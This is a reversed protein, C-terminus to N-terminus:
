DNEAVPKRLDEAGLHNEFNTMWATADIKACCCSVGKQM